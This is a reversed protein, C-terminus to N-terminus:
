VDLLTAILDRLDQRAEFGIGPIQSPTAVGESIITVDGKRSGAGSGGVLQRRELRDRASRKVERQDMDGPRDVRERYGAIKRVVGSARNAGSEGTSPCPNSGNTGRWLFRNNLLAANSTETM